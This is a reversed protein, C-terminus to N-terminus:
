FLRPEAATDESELLIFRAGDKELAELDLTGAGNVAVGWEGSEVKSGDASILLDVAAADTARSSGCKIAAM